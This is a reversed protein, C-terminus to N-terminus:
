LGLSRQEILFEAVLPHFRVVEGVPPFQRFVDLPLRVAEPLLVVESVLNRSMRLRPLHVSRVRAERRQRLAALRHAQGLERRAPACPWQRVQEM